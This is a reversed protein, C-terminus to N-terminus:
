MNVSNDCKIKSGLIQIKCWILECNTDLETVAEAVLDKKTLIFVGGSERDQGRDKRFCDYVEYVKTLIHCLISM